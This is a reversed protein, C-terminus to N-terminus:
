GSRPRVESAEFASAAIARSFGRGKLEDDEKEKAPSVASVQEVRKALGFDLIKVQGSKTLFINAPKIDRHVIGKAHAAQLGECIQIAMNLLQDLPLKSQVSALAALRDRLTEGQLLQMVIFPQGDHEEVEHITCINPHDLSSAARAEREFRQLAVPDSAMEPPLFKLAVHRGLKLDEAKYVMGMGGGGIVELVRYHSVKKGILGPEPQLRAATGDAGGSVEGSCDEEGVWEIAAALRYGRRPITEIWRPAEPSDDLAQRLKKIATNIGNEFDVITDDPWLKRQIEDRSVLEGGHELLIQLVRLSKEQLRVSQDGSRVEGVRLDVEFDGLRVRDPLTDRM